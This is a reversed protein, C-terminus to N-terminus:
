GCYSAKKNAPSSGSRSATKSPAGSVIDYSTDSDPQSTRDASTRPKPQLTETSAQPRPPKPVASSALAAAQPQEDEEEEEEDDDEEEEDEEEEEEEEEEEGEEEEEEEQDDDEEDAKVAKEPKKEDDDEGDDSDWGVTEEELAGKLLEKRKQEETDLQQRLFYYRKWFDEYKVEAPVVKEMSARLEPYKDLDAAIQETSKEVDFSATWDKNYSEVDPDNKFLDLSTHLLHLQADLRTTYIQRKGEEGAQYGAAGAGGEREKGKGKGEEDAFEGGEPPAITVADKLFNGVTSGWKLLYEDARAEAKEIEEIRKAANAKLKSIFSDQIEQSSRTETTTNDHAGTSGDGGTTTSSADGGEQPPAAAGTLSLSRTRNILNTKLDTFGRTATEAVTSRSAEKYYTESQKKVTGMFAGFRMGWPSSSIAKYAENFEANLGIGENSNATTAPKRNQEQAEIVAEQVHDYALDM